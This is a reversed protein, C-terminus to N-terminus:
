FYLCIFENSNHSFNDTNVQSCGIGADCHKLTVVRNHDRVAFAAVCRRRNDSKDVTAFTLYAIGGFTLGDGIGLACDIRDFAEHALGVVLHLFLDLAHWILNHTRGVSHRADVDVAALISRLLDRGHDKLLHLLSGFIIEARGDVLSDDGHRGVEVVRLTLCGLFGALDGTQFHATDDVLRGGCGEGVAEVLGVLILLDCHEVEAAACEIDRNEFEAVADEFNLRGIAVGVEAAVVEVLDDDVPEGVFELFFLADVKKLIGHCLLSEFLSGFFGLDFKRRCCRGLDVEGIDCSSGAARFM